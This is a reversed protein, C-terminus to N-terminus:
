LMILVKGVKVQTSSNHFLFSLETNSDNVCLLGTLLHVPSYFSKIFGHPPFISCIQLLLHFLDAFRLDHAVRKAENNTLTQDQDAKLVANYLNLNTNLYQINMIM